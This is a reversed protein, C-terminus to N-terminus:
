ESQEAKLRAIAKELAAIEAKMIAAERKTVDVGNRHLTTAGSELGQLFRRLGDLEETHPDAM